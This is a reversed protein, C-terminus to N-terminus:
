AQFISYNLFHFLFFYDYLKVCGTYLNHFTNRNLSILSLETMSIQKHLVPSILSIEFYPLLSCDM